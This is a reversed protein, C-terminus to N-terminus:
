EHTCSPLVKTQLRAVFDDEDEEGLHHLELTAQCPFEVVVVLGDVDETVHRAARRQLLLLRLVRPSSRLLPHLLRSLFM